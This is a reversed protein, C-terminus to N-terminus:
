QASSLGLPVDSSSNTTWSSLCSFSFFNSPLFYLFVSFNWESWPVPSTVWPGSNSGWCQLFFFFLGFFCIHSLCYALTATSQMVSLVSVEFFNIQVYHVHLLLLKIYNPMITIQCSIQSVTFSLVYHFSGSLTRPSKMKSIIKKLDSKCISFHQCKLYINEFNKQSLIWKIVM